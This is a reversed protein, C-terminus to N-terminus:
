HTVGVVCVFSKNKKKKEKQRVHADWLWDNLSLVTELVALKLDWEFTTLLNKMKRKQKNENRTKTKEGLQTM